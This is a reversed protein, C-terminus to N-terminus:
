ATFRLRQTAGAALTVVDSANGPRQHLGYFTTAVDLTSTISLEVVAGEPVRILPAPAQAPKGVEALAYVRIAEGGEGEPHWLAQRLELRLTLVGDRLQGAPVRNDNTVISELTQAPLVPAGVIHVLPLVLAFSAFHWRM